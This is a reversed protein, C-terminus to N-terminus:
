FRVVVTETNRKLTVSQREIADIIWEDRVPDGIRARKGNAFLIMPNDGLEIAAVPPFDRLQPAETVNSVVVDGTTLQDIARRTERWDPILAAPLSGTINVIGQDSSTVTLFQSLGAQDIQAISIEAASQRPAAAAGPEEAQPATLALPPDPTFDLVAQLGFAGLGVAFLLPVAIAEFHYLNLPARKDANSFRIRVGGVAIECPLRLPATEVGPSLVQNNASVDSRDTVITLLPGFVSRQSTFRINPGLVEDDLLMVDNSTESGITFQAEDISGTSGLHLGSLVEVDLTVAASSAPMVKTLLQRFESKALTTYTEISHAM